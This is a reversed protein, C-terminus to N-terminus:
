RYAAYLEVVSGSESTSSEEITKIEDKSVGYRGHNTMIEHCALEVVAQLTLSSEQKIFEIQQWTHEPLKLRVKVLDDGSIADIHRKDHPLRYLVYVAHSLAAIIATRNFRRPVRVVKLQM